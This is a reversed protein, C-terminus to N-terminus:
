TIYFLTCGVDGATRLMVLPQRLIRLSFPVKRTWAIAILLLTAMLGRVAILQPVALDATLLKVLSDNVVFAAMALLMCLSARVNDSFALRPLLSVASQQALPRDGATRSGRRKPSPRRRIRSLWPTEDEITRYRGEPRQRPKEDLPGLAAFIPRFTM